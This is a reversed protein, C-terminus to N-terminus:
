GGDFGFLAFEFAHAHFAFLFLHGRFLGKASPSLRKACFCYGFPLAEASGNNNNPLNRVEM